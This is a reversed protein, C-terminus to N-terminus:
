HLGGRLKEFNKNPTWGTLIFTKRTHALRGHALQELQKQYFYDHVYTLSRKHKLQSKIECILNEKDRAAEALLQRHHGIEEAPTKDSVPLAVTEFNAKSLFDHFIKSEATLYFILLHTKEKAAHLIEIHVATSFKELKNKFIGFEKTKCIGAAVCTKVTCALQNLRADLARWPLLIEIEARLSHELTKLNALQDERDKLKAIVARWDFEKATQALIEETVPEKPPAFTEILNKKKGSVSELLKVASELELLEMEYNHEPEFAPLEPPSFIEVTGHQQLYALVKDRAEIHGIVAVKQMPVVPM